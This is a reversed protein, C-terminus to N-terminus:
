SFLWGACVTVSPDRQTECVGGNGIHMSHSLLSPLVAICLCQTLSTATNVQPMPETNSTVPVETAVPTAVEPADLATVEDDNPVKEGVNTPGAAVPQLLGPQEKSVPGKKEGEVADLGEVAGAAADV